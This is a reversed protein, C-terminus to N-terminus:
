QTVGKTRKRMFVRRTLMAVNMLALLEKKHAEPCRRLYHDFDPEHDASKLEDGFEFVLDEVVGTETETETAIEM